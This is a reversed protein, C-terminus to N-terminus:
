VGAKILEAPIQDNGPSNHSKLKENALEVDSPSACATTTRSTYKERGLM